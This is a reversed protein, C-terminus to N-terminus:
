ANGVLIFDGAKKLAMASQSVFYIIAECGFGRKALENV